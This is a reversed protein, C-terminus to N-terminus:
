LQEWIYMVLHESTPQRSAFWPIDEEIQSHDLVDIVRENVIDRVDGLDALYGTEPDVPGALSVELEYNHGHVNHDPGFVAKNKPESWGPNHYRHAANFHFKKTLLIMKSAVYVYDRAISNVERFGDWGCEKRGEAPRSVIWCAADSRRM